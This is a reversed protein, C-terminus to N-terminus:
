AGDAGDFKGNWLVHARRHEEVVMEGVEILVMTSIDRGEVGILQFAISLAGVRDVAGVTTAGFLDGKVPVISQGDVWAAEDGVRHEVVRESRRQLLIELAGILVASDVFHLVVAPNSPGGVPVEVAVGLVVGRGDHRRGVPTFCEGLVSFLVTRGVQALPLSELDPHTCGTQGLEALQILAIVVLGHSSSGVLNVDGVTLGKDSGINTHSTLSVLMHVCVEWGLCVLTGLGDDDGSTGDHTATVVEKSDCVHDDTAQTNDETADEGDSVEQLWPLGRGRYCSLQELTAM